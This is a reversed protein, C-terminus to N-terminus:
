HSKEMIVHNNLIRMPEHISPLHNWRPLSTLHYVAPPPLDIPGPQQVLHRLSNNHHLPFCSYLYYCSTLLVRFTTPVMTDHRAIDVVVLIQVLPVTKFTSHENGNAAVIGYIRSVLM